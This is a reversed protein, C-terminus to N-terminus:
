NITCQREGIPKEESHTKESEDEKYEQISASHVCISRCSHDIIGEQQSKTSDKRLLRM